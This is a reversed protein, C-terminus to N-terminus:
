RKGNCFYLFIELLPCVRMLYKTRMKTLRKMSQWLFCFWGFFSASLSRYNIKYVKPMDVYILNSCFEFMTSTVFPLKKM